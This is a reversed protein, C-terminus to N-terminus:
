FDRYSLNETEGKIEQGKKVYKERMRLCPVTSVTGTFRLGGSNEATGAGGAASRRM